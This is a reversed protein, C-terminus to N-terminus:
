ASGRGGNEHRQRGSLVVAGDVSTDQLLVRLERGPVTFETFGCKLCVALKPYVFVISKSLGELGPFHIGVESNFTSQNESFCKQCAM